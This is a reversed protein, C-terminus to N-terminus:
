GSRYLALTEIRPTDLAAEITLRVRDTTVAAVRHLRKHGITTGRAVTTWAGGTWAELRYREVAQGYAIAEALCTVDFSLLHNFALEVSGTRKGGVPQWFTSGDGDVLRRADHGQGDADRSGGRAGAALNTAFLARRREGFEAVRAVDREHFVGDATPPVNLLLGANRGVSSFYLELLNDPTRVQDDQKRHWFWGPRISVDAEGPRWVSGAPDGHQLADSVEDGVAGPYPVARPDVTCWNPDGAVGQENGIWRIDPGADSFILAHPQLRRVIAQFRPWDYVQRRGNPGEGNAGDFWVEVLSGYRTLLETLQRAYFENYSPSDGYSPEHRDWPSLYLGVGLGEHRCADVFERVVDGQGDRWPSSRVSHSTTETPWLCFGDHHKATLIMTRFGGAKATRAWQGADLRAPNFIRPDERGDGWERDTFTNVTFHVFMALEAGHWALHEASPRPRAPARRGRGPPLVTALAASASAALFVRRRM